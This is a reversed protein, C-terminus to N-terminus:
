PEVLGLVVQVAVLADAASGGAALVRRGAEVAHPNAAAVMYNEAVVPQGSTKLAIAEAVAPSIAEFDGKAAAEPEVADAAQQAVAGNALASLFIVSLIRM